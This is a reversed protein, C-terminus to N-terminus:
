LSEGENVIYLGVLRMVFITLFLQGIIVESNDTGSDDMPLLAAMAAPCGTTWHGAFTTLQRMLELYAARRYFEAKFRAIISLKPIKIANLSPKSLIIRFLSNM